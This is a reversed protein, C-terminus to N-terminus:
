HYNRERGHRIGVVTVVDAVENYRYLALYGNKGFRIILERYDNNLPYSRGLYPNDALQTLNDYITMVANKATDRNESAELLFQRLRAIDHRSKESLTLRAM